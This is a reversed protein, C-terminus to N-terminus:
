HVLVICILLSLAYSESLNIERIGYLVPIVRNYLFRFTYMWIPIGIGLLIAQIFVVYGVAMDKTIEDILFTENNPM